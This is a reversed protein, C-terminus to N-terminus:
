TQRGRGVPVITEKRQPKGKGEKKEYPTGHSTRVHSVMIAELKKVM